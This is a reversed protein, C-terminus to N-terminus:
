KLREGYVGFLIIHKDKQRCKKEFYLNAKSLESETIQEAGATEAENPKATENSESAISVEESNGTSEAVQASVASVVLQSGIAVSMLGTAVKRLAYKKKM